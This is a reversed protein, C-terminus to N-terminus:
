DKKIFDIMEQVIVLKDEVDKLSVEIEDFPYKEEFYYHTLIDGLDYYKNFSPDYKVAEDLLVKLDHIKKLKWGKNILYGKLYKEVGQQLLVAAVDSPGDKEILIKVAEIDNAAKKYWELAKIKNNDDM